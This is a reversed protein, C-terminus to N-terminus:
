VLLDRRRTEVVAVRPKWSEENEGEGGGGGKIYPSQALLCANDGALELFELPAMNKDLM